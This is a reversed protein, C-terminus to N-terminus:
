APTVGQLLDIRVMQVFHGEVHVIRWPSPEWEGWRSVYGGGPAPKPRDEFSFVERVWAPRRMYTRHAATDPNLGGCGYIRFGKPYKHKATDQGKSAYKALYRLPSRAVDMETSGHKWWGAQDPYPIRLSAPAFFCVHYHLVGAKTLEAVWVYRCPLERRDMWTRLCKILATIHKPSPEVDPRYTLTLFWVKWDSGDPRIIHMEKKTRQYQAQRGSRPQRREKKKIIKTKGGLDTFHGGCATVVGQSMRRMRSARTDTVLALSESM